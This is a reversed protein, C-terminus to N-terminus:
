DASHVPILRQVAVVKAIRTVDTTNNSDSTLYFKADEQVILFSNLPVGWMRQM